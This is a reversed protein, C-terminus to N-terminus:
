GRNLYRFNNVPDFNIVRAANMVVFITPRFVCAADSFSSDCESHISPAFRNGKLEVRTSMKVFFWDCYTTQHALLPTVESFPFKLGSLGSIQQLFVSRGLVVGNNRPGPCILGDKAVPAISSGGLSM